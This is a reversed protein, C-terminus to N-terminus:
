NKRAEWQAVIQQQHDLLQERTILFVGHGGREFELWMVPLDPLLQDVAPASNGVEVVMIGEPNLHEAAEALMQLVLDLGDDGAALALEPEHHFEKPLTAMDQADVYPPNSVIIDYSCGQLGAFLNSEVLRVQEAMRHKKVNKKAVELADASIDAADVEADPFATACAIAICASGTCLDLIRGVRDPAVWPEFGVEILEAIPSRPILVREDVYFEMGMFWSQHTLYPLPLRENVRREILAVVLERESQTLRSAYLSEPINQPLHLAQRVLAVGEDVANDTGHGYFLEAASFRSVAWRIFDVMSELDNVAESVNGM